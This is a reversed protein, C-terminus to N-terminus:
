TPKFYKYFLLFIHDKLTWCWRLSFAQLTVCSGLAWKWIGTFVYSFFLLPYCLIWIQVSILYTTEAFVFRKEKKRELGWPIVIQCTNESGQVTEANQRCLSVHLCTLLLCLSPPQDEANGPWVAAIESEGPPKPGRDLLPCLCQAKECTFPRSGHPARQENILLWRTPTNTIWHKRDSNYQNSKHEKDNM